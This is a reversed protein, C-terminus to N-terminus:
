ENNDGGEKMLIAQVSPPLLLIDKCFIKNYLFCMLDWDPERILYLPLESDEKAHRLDDKLCGNLAHNLARYNKSSRDRLYRDELRNRWEKEISEDPMIVVTIDPAIEALRNRVVEHCSTFVLYGQKALDVAINTYGIWWDDAKTGDDKYFNSSELDIFWVRNECVTSKGIGPYGCIIKGDM